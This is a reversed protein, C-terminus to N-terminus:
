HLKLRQFSSVGRNLVILSLGHQDWSTRKSLPKVTNSLKLSKETDKKPCKTTCYHLPAM